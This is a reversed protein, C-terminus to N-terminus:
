KQYFSVSFGHVLSITIVKKTIYYYISTISTNICILLTDHQSTPSNKSLFFPVELSILIMIRLRDTSIAIRIVILAKILTDLSENKEIFLISYFLIETNECKSIKFKIPRTNNQWSFM